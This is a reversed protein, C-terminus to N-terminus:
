ALWDRRLNRAVLQGARAHLFADIAADLHEEPALSLDRRLRAAILYDYIAFRQLAASDAVDPQHLRVRQMAAMFEARVPDKQPAPPEAPQAAALQAVLGIAAAGLLTKLRNSMGANHHNFAMLMFDFITAINSVRVPAWRASNTARRPPTGISAGANCSTGSISAGASRERSSLQCASGKPNQM